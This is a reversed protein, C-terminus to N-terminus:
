EHLQLWRMLEAKPVRNPARERRRRDVLGEVSFQQYKHRWRRMTRPSLGLVEAAQLWTMTGRLAQLIVERPRMAREVAAPAPAM